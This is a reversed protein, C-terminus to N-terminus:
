IAHQLSPRLTLIQALAANIGIEPLWDCEPPNRRGLERPM